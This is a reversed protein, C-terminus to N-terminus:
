HRRLPLAQRRHGSGRCYRYSFLRSSLDQIKKTQNIGNVELLRSIGHRQLCRHLSSRTRDLVKSSLIFAITSRFCHTGDSALSSRTRFARLGRGDASDGQAREPGDAYRWRRGNRGSPSLSRTSGMASPFSGRVKRVIRYRGVSQRLRSSSPRCHMGGNLFLYQVM